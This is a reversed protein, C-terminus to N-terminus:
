YRKEFYHIKQYNNLNWFKIGNEVLSTLINKDELLLISFVENNDELTKICKYKNNKDEEWIKITKDVSCSIIDGNLCYIYKNIWDNHSNNIELQLNFLYENNFIKRLKKKMWAKIDKNSCTVFNNEDKISVHKIKDAHANPINQIISGLNNNYINISTDNSVIIINGSPFQSLSNINENQIKKSNIEKLYCHTLQIENEKSIENKINKISLDLKKNEEKLDKIQWVLREIIEVCLKKKEKIKLEKNRIKLKLYKEKEEIGDIYQFLYNEMKNIPFDLSLFENLYKVKFSSEYINFDNEIKFIISYFDDILNIKRENIIKENNFNKLMQISKM